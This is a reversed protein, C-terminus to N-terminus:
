IDNTKVQSDVLIIINVGDAKVNIHDYFLKYLGKTVQHEDDIVLEDVGLAGAIKLYLKNKNTLEVALGYFVGNYEYKIKNELDKEIFTAYELVLSSLTGDDIDQKGDFMVLLGTASSLDLTQFGYCVSATILFVLYWYIGHFM